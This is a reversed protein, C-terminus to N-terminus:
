LDGQSQSLDDMNFSGVIEDADSHPKGGLILENESDESEMEADSVEIAQKKEQSGLLLQAKRKRHSTYEGIMVDLDEGAERRWRSYTVARTEWPQWTPM